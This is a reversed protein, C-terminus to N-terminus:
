LAARRASRQESFRARIQEAEGRAQESAPQTITLLTSARVLLTRGPILADCSRRSLERGQEATQADRFACLSLGLGSATIATACYRASLTRALAQRTRTFSIGTAEFEKLADEVSKRSEPHESAERMLREALPLPDPEQPLSLAPPSAPKPESKLASSKARSCAGLLAVVLLVSLHSREM